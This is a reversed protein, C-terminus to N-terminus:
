EFKRDLSFKGPGVLILLIMGCLYLYAVEGTRQGLLTFHHVLSFAVLLNVACVAAALRTALGFIILISCIADSVLAFALSPVPGLHLPDPFHAAMASFGSVKEWGHRLFLSFGMGIRLVLLALDLNLPVFGLGFVKSIATM